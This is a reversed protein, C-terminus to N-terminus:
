EGTDQWTPNTQYNGAAPITFPTPYLAGCVLKNGGVTTYLAWGTIPNSAGGGSNTFTVLAAQALAHFDATLAAAAWGGVAQPTYGTFGAPFTGVTGAYTSAHTFAPVAGELLALMLGGFTAGAVRQDVLTPKIEDSLTGPM